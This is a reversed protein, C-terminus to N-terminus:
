SSAIPDAYFYARTYVYGETSRRYFPRCHRLGHHGALADGGKIATGIRM